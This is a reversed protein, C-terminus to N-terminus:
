VGGGTTLTTLITEIDGVINDVYQKSAYEKETYYDNTSDYDLFVLTDKGLIVLNGNNDKLVMTNKTVPFDTNTGEISAVIKGNGSSSNFYIGEAINKANTGRSSINLNTITPTNIFRNNIINNVDAATQCAGGIWEDTQYEYFYNGMSCVIAVLGDNLFVLDGKTLSISDNEIELEGSNMIMYNADNLNNIDVSASTFTYETYPKNILDNYDSTGGAGTIEVWKKNKRGYTKNDKPADSFGRLGRLEIEKGDKGHLSAIWEEKTGKFGLECAIDYASKGAEGKQLELDNVFKEIKNINAKLTKNEKRIESLEKDKLNNNKILEEYQKTIEKSLRNQIDTISDDISKYVKTSDEKIKKIKNNIEDKNLKNKNSVENSYKKAEDVEKSFEKKINEIYSEYTEIVNNTFNRYKELESNIFFSDKVNKIKSLEKLEKEILNLKRALVIIKNDM